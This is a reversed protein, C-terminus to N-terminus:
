LFGGVPAEHAEDGGVKCVAVDGVGDLVYKGMRMVGDGDECVPRGRCFDDECV